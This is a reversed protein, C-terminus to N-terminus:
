YEKWEDNLRFRKKNSQEEKKKNHRKKIAEIITPFSLILILGIVLVIINLVNSKIETFANTIALGILGFFLFSVIITGCGSSCGSPIQWIYIFRM